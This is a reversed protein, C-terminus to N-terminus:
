MTAYDSLSGDETEDFSQYLLNECNFPSLQETEKFSQYLLLLEYACNFWIDIEHFSQRLSIQVASLLCEDFIHQLLVNACKVTSM